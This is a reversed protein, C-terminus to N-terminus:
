PKPAYNMPAQYTNIAPNVKILQNILPHSWTISSASIRSL